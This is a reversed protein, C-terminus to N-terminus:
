PLRYRTRPRRGGRPRAPLIVIRRRTALHECARRVQTLDIDTDPERLDLELWNRFLLFFFRADRLMFGRVDARERDIVAALDAALLSATLLTGTLGVRAM